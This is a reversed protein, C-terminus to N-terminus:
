RRRGHYLCSNVFGNSGDEQCTCVWLSSTHLKRKCERRSRSLRSRRYQALAIFHGCQCVTIGGGWVCMCACVVCVCCSRYGCVRWGRWRWWVSVWASVWGILEGAWMSLRLVVIVSFSIPHHAVAVRREMEGCRSTLCVHNPKQEIGVRVDICTVVKACSRQMISRTAAVHICNHQQDTSTAVERCRVVHVHLCRLLLRM